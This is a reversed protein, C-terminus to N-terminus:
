LVSNYISYFDTISLDTGSYLAETGVKITVNERLYDLFGNISVEYGGRGCTADYYNGNYKNIVHDQFGISNPDGGGQFHKATQQLSVIDHEIELDDVWVIKGFDRSYRLKRLSNPIIFFSECENYNAVIGQSRLLDVFLRMWHHCRGHRSHLFEDTTWHVGPTSGGDGWYTLVRGDLLELRCTQIEKWLLSFAEAETSAGKAAKCSINLVSEFLGNPHANPNETVCEANQCPNNISDLPTKLPVYVKIDCAGAAINSGGSTQVKWPLSLYKIDVTDSVAQASEMNSRCSLVYYGSYQNVDFHSQNFTNGIGAATIYDMDGNYTNAGIGALQLTTLKLKDGKKVVFPTNKDEYINDNDYPYDEFAFGDFGTGSVRAVDKWLSQPYNKISGNCYDVFSSGGIAAKHCYLETTTFSLTKQALDFTYISDAAYLSIYITKYGSSPMKFYIYQPASGVQWKKNVGGTVDPAIMTTCSDEMYLDSDTPMGPMPMLSWSVSIYCINEHPFSAPITSLDIRYVDGQKMYVTRTKEALDVLYVDIPVVCDADRVTGSLGPNLISEDKVTYELNYTGVPVSNFNGTLGPLMETYTSVETPSIRPHGFVSVKYISTFGSTTESYIGNNLEYDKDTFAPTAFLSTNLPLVYSFRNSASDVTISNGFSTFYVGNNRSFALAGEGSGNVACYESDAYVASCFLIASFALLIFLRKLNEM